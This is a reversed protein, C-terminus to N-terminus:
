QIKQQFFDVTKAIGEEFSVEPQYGIVESARSVDAFSHQVDGKRPDRFTPNIETNLRKNIADVLSTM